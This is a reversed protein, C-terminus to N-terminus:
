DIYYELQLIAETIHRGSMPHVKEEIEKLKTIITIIDDSYEDIEEYKEEKKFESDFEVLENEEIRGENVSWYDWGKYDCVQQWIGLDMIQKVTLITKM